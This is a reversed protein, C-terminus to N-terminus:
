AATSSPNGAAVGGSTASIVTEADITTPSGDNQLQQEEEQRQQKAEWAIFVLCVCMGTSKCRAKAFVQYIM